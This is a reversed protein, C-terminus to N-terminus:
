KIKILLSESVPTEKIYNEYVGPYDEEFRDKDFSKRASATKRTISVRDGKWSYLGEKVMAKMLGETLAKKQETLVKLQQEIDVIMGEAESLLVPMTNHVEGYQLGEADCRLLEEVKETPVRELEVLQAVEGRLWIAFISSVKAGPNQKEFLYAYISLQWMVYEKNLKYTTKIDGLFFTTDDHRYVKDICSAVHENDSVLYESEEFRLNYKEKLKLYNISEQNDSVFGEDVLECCQHIFTGREAAKRLVEDPIGLYKDKFLQRDLLSTIGSLQKGNLIYTHDEPHFVVESKNLKM